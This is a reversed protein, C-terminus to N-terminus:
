GEIPGGPPVDPGRQEVDELAADFPGFDIRELLDGLGQEGAEERELGAELGANIEELLLIARELAGVVEADPVGEDLGEVLKELELIRRELRGVDMRPESDMPGPSYM